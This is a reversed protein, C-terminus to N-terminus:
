PQNRKTPPSAHGHDRGVVVSSNRRTPHPHRRRTRRLPMPQPLGAHVQTAHQARRELQHRASVRGGQRGLGRAGGASNSGDSTGEGNPKRDYYSLRSASPLCSVQGARPSGDAPRTAGVASRVVATQAACPAPAAVAVGWPPSRSRGAAYSRAPFRRPETRHTPAATRRGRRRSSDRQRGRAPRVGRARPQRLASRLGPGTRGRRGQDTRPHGRHQHVSSPVAKGRSRDVGTDGGSRVAARLRCGPRSLM